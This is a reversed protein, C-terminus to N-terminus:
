TAKEKEFIKMLKPAEIWRYIDREEMVWRDQKFKLTVDPQNRLIRWFRYAFGEGAMDKLIALLIEERGDESSWDQCLQEGTDDKLAEGNKFVLCSGTGKDRIGTYVNGPM